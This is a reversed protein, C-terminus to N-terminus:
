VIHEYAGKFVSVCFEDTEFNRSEKALELIEDVPLDNFSKEFILIFANERAVTRKLMIM